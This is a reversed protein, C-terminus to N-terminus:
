LLNHGPGVISCDLGLITYLLIPLEGGLRSSKIQYKEIRGSACLMSFTVRCDLSTRREITVGSYTGHKERVVADLLMLNPTRAAVIRLM